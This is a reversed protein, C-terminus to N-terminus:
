SRPPTAARDDQGDKVEPDKLWSAPDVGLTKLSQPGQTSQQEAQAAFRQFLEAAWRTTTGQFEVFANDATM